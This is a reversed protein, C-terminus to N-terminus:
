KKLLYYGVGLWALGFLIGSSLGSLSSISVDVPFGILLALGIWLPLFKTRMMMIGLTIYGVMALVMGCIFFLGLSNQGAFLTAVASVAMLGTGIVTLWFGAMGAKGYRNRSFAHLGILAVITALLAVIFVVELIYDSTSSFIETQPRIWGMIAQVIYGLGAVIGAIGGDRVSIKM